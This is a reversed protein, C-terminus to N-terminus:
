RCIALQGANKVGGQGLQLRARALLDVPQAIGGPAEDVRGGAVEVQQRLAQEDVAGHRQRVDVVGEQARLRVDPGILL